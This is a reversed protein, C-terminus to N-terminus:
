QRQELLRKSEKLLFDAEMFPDFSVDQWRILGNGDILFTGHLPINEFDDHCRYQKFVHQEPDAVLPFPFAAQGNEKPGEAAYREESKKLDSAPDTSIAVLEIGAEKFQQTLPAFKELQQACHLCGHGLYFIVVVPKGHYDGLAINGGAANPLTWSPAPVPSWRFPGLANLDPRNGVDGPTVRPERWDDPLNLEKALLALRQFVALDNDLASAAARLEKFASHAEDKKGAAHLVYVYNALPYVEDPSRDKAQRATEVAKDNNAALLYLLALHEKPFSGVKELAAVADPYRKEAAALRGNLEDLAETAQQVKGSFGAKADDRAKNIGAEDKKEETAKKFAEEGAKEQEQVIAAKIQELASIQEKGHATDEKALYAAGLLKLRKIQEDRDDTPYLVASNCLAITEDWLEYLKLAEMLRARGFFASSGQNGITNLRPHQPQSIMNKALEVADHARGVNVLSRCLWENNHAYNHIQYPLVRDRMMQAHDARASAEQQYASDHYRRLRWYIHGPMHWMHAITPASQGCLASSALAKESKKYDWLHIRYHHVPHLPQQELVEGILADVATHSLFSHEGRATWLAWTLFAKAELEDPFELYLNELADILPQWRDKGSKDSTIYGNFADIWLQERRSAKDRRKVAEAMFKKGRDGNNFNALAMGFYAMACDPDLAAAQRFSREAEFYWFGHVQGIGQDFFKQAEPAKTTVEIHVDGCGGMLHAAQRPGENFADGHGSHGALPDNKRAEASLDEPQAPQVVETPTDAQLPEQAPVADSPQAANDQGSASACWCSAVAAALLLSGRRFCSRM